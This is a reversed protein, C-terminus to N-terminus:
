VGWGENSCRIGKVSTKEFRSTDLNVRYASRVITYWENDTTKVIAIITEDAIGNRECLGYVVQFGPPAEPYPMQDTVLWRAKKPDTRPESKGFYLVLHNAGEVVGISYECSKEIGLSGGICAGGKDKWGDPFPPVITGILDGAVCAGALLMLSLIGAITKM